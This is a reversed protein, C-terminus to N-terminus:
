EIRLRKEADRLTPWVPLSPPFPNDSASPVIGLFHIGVEQAALYETMSDGIALIDARACPAEAAIRNFSDRKTAPAGRASKFYPALGRQRIILQLEDDPTGSVVHMQVKGNARQVFQEAGDIYRCDLVAPLVLESYRRCLSEVADADGSRGFFEREYYAFKTRRTIGGHLQCHEVLARLKRPDEAAYIMMYGRLKIDASDLIVGDFDFIIVKPPNPPTEALM